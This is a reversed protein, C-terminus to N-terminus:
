FSTAKIQGNCFKSRGFDKIVRSTSRTLILINWKAFNKTVNKAVNKAFNETFNGALFSVFCLM